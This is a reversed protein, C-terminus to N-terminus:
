FLSKTYGGDIRITEGTIFAAQQSCLFAALAGMEDPRGWRGVPLMKRYWEETKVGTGSARYERSLESEFPGTAVTNATIGYPGNEQSLTKMLAAVAVRINSAPMPDELHPTKMAISGINLLRGWRKERMVPLVERTLYVVSMVFDQYAELFDEDSCNEFGRWRNTARDPVPGPSNVVLVDPSGFGAGAAAAIIQQAGAKATMDAVVGVATGGAARIAEVTADVAEANRGSLVVKAGEAALAESIGRGCGRSGGAVVAVKDKLGLEM